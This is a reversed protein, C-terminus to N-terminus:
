LIKTQPSATKIARAAETADEIVGRASEVLLGAWDDFGLVPNPNQAMSYGHFSVADIPWVAGPAHENRDLFQRWTWSNNKQGQWAHCNGVFKIAPHRERVTAVVGDYWRIYAPGPIKGSGPIGPIGSGINDIENLLELYGFTYNHGSHHFTGREDTFGGRCYWDLIMSFWRGERRGTPDAFGTRDPRFFWEGGVGVIQLINTAPYATSSQLSQVNIDLARFDWSTTAPVQCCSCGAACYERCCSCNPFNYRCTESTNPPSIAPGVATKRTSNPWSYFYDTGSWLRVYPARLQRRAAKIPEVIDYESPPYVGGKGSAGLATDHWSNIAPSVALPPGSWDVAVSFGAKPPESDDDAKLRSSPQSTNSPYLQAMLDSGARLLEQQAQTMPHAIRGSTYLGMGPMEPFRDQLRTAEARLSEPTWGHPVLPSRAIMWGFFFITRNIFGRSRAWELRPVYGEVSHGCPGWGPVVACNPGIPRSCNFLPCFSDAPCVRTDALRHLAMVMAQSVARSWQLISRAMM